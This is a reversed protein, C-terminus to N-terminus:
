AGQPVYGIRARLRDRKHSRIHRLPVGLVSIAGGMIRPSAPVDLDGEGALVTALTSKGSGSEGLVALTEGPMIKFTAGSVANGALAGGTQRFRISLDVASVTPRRETESEM